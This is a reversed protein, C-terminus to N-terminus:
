FMAERTKFMVKGEDDTFIKSAFQLAKDLRAEGKELPLKDIAENFDFESSYQGFAIEKTAESSYLIVGVQQEGGNTLLYKVADKIFNKVRQFASPSVNESSEVVFAM